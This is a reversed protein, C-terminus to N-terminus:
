ETIRSLSAHEPAFIDGHNAELERIINEDIDSIVQGGDIEETKVKGSDLFEQAKESDTSWYHIVGEDNIKFLTIIYLDEEHEESRLHLIGYENGKKLVLETIEPKFTQNEDDWELNGSKFEGNEGTKKLNIVVHEEDELTLLWAGEFRELEEPSYNFGVPEKVILPTCGVMLLLSLLLLTNKM